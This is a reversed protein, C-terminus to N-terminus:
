ALQVEGDAVVPAEAAVPEVGEKKAAMRALKNTAKRIRQQAEKVKDGEVVDRKLVDNALLDAIQAADVKLDPFLKRMERRIIAM